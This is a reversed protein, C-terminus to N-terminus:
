AADQGNGNSAAQLRLNRKEDLISQLSPSIKYPGRMGIKEAHLKIEEVHDPYLSVTVKIVREAENVEQEREVDSITEM